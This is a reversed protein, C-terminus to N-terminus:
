TKAILRIEARQKLSDIWERIRTARREAAVRRRVDGEIASFAPTLGGVVFDSEHERYYALAQERTPQAVATFRQDLYASLRLDDRFWATLMTERVGASELLNPLNTGAPLTEEWNRRHIAMQASDPEAPTYRAVEALMLRREILQTLVADDDMSAVSPLLRLRRAARVDLQTLVDGNVVALM